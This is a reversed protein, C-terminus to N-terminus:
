NCNRVGNQISEQQYDLTQKLAADLYSELEQVRVRLSEVESVPHSGIIKRVSSESLDVGGNLDNACFYLLLSHDSLGSLDPSLMRYLDYPFIHRLAEVAYQMEVGEQLRIGEKMGDSCYHVILADDDLENLDPRLSRYFDFPFISRLAEFVPDGSSVEDIVRPMMRQSRRMEDVLSGPDSSNLWHELLDSDSWEQLDPRIERYSSADFLLQLTSVQIESWDSRKPIWANEDVAAQTFGAAACAEEFERQKEGPMAPYRLLISSCQKLWSGAGRLIRVPDGQRLFLRISGWPEAILNPQELVTSFRAAQISSQDLERLNPAMELWTSRNWVGNFRSDSFRRWIVADDEPGALVVSQLVVANSHEQVLNQQQFVDLAAQDADLILCPGEPLKRLLAPCGVFVNLCPESNM